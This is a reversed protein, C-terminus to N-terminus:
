SVSTRIPLVEVTFKLSSFPSVITVRPPPVTMVSTPTLPNLVSVLMISLVETIGIYYRRKHLDQNIKPNVYWQQSAYINDRLLILKFSAIIRNNLRILGNLRLIRQVRKKRM